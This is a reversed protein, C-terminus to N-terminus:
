IEITLEGPDKDKKLSLAVKTLNGTIGATFTQACWKQDKVEHWDDSHNPNNQDLQESVEGESPLISEWDPQEDAPAPECASIDGTPETVNITGATTTYTYAYAGGSLLLAIMLALILRSKKKM